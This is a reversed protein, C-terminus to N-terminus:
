DMRTLLWARASRWLRHVSRESIVLAEAIEAMSLGAFYKLEVVRSMNSDRAELAQLASDLAVLQDATLGGDPDAQDPPMTTMLPDAGRKLAQRRRAHDIIVRRMVRGVIGIFHSSDNLATPTSRDIRLFAEHVLATPDLTMAPGSALRARALLRLQSYLAKFLASAADPDGDNLAQVLAQIDGQPESDSM